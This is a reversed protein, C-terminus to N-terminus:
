LQHRMKNVKSSSYILKVGQLHGKLPQFMNSCVTNIFHHNLLIHNCRDTNIKFYQYQYMSLFLIFDGTGVKSWYGKPVRIKCKFKLVGQVSFTFLVPVLFPLMIFYIAIQLSFCLTHLM